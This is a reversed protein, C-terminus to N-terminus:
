YVRIGEAERPSVIDSAEVTAGSRTTPQTLSKGTLKALATALAIDHQYDGWTTRPLPYNKDCVGYENDESTLDIDPVIGEGWDGNGKAQNHCKEKNALKCEQPQRFASKQADAHTNGKRIHAKHHEEGTDINAKHGDAILQAVGQGPSAVAEEDDEAQAGADQGHQCLRSDMHKVLLHFFNGLAIDGSVRHQSTQANTNARGDSQRHHPNDQIERQHIIDNGTIENRQTQRQQYRRDIRTNGKVGATHGATRHSSGKQKRKCGTGTGSNAAIQQCISEANHSHNGHCRKDGNLHQAKDVPYLVAAAAGCVIGRSEVVIVGDDLKSTNLASLLM